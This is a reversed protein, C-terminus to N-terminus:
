RHRPAAQARQVEQALAAVFLAAAANIWAMPVGVVAEGLTLDGTAPPGAMSFMLRFAPRQMAEWAGLACAGRAVVNDMGMGLWAWLVSTQFGQLVYDWARESQSLLAALAEPAYNALGFLALLALGATM